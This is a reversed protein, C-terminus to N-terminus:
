DPCCLSRWGLSSLSSGRAIMHYGLHRQQPPGDRRPGDAANVLAKGSTQTEETPQDVAKSQGEQILAAALVLAACVVAGLIGAALRATDRHFNRLVDDTGPVAVVDRAEERGVRSKLKNFVSRSGPLLLTLLVSVAVLLLARDLALGVDRAAPV